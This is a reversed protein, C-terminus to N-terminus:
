EQMRVKAIEYSVRMQCDSCVHLADIPHAKFHQVAHNFSYFQCNSVTMMDILQSDVNKALFDLIDNMQQPCMERWNYKETANESYM